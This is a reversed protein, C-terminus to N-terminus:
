AERRVRERYLYGYTGGVLVMVFYRSPANVSLCLVVTGNDLEAQRTTDGGHGNRWLVAPWTMEDEPSFEDREPCVVLLDGPALLELRTGRDAAVKKRRKM